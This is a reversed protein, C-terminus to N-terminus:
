LSGGMRREILTQLDKPRSRRPGLHQNEHPFAAATAECVPLRCTVRCSRRRRRELKNVEHPWLGSSSPGHQIRVVARDEEEATTVVNRETVDTLPLPRYQRQTAPRRVRIAPQTRPATMVNSFTDQLVRPGAAVEGFALREAFNRALVWGGGRAGSSAARLANERRAAGASSTHPGPTIHPESM